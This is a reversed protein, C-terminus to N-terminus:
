AGSARRAERSAMFEIQLREARERLDYAEGCIVFPTGFPLGNMLRNVLRDYKENIEIYEKIRPDRGIQMRVNGVRRETFNRHFDPAFLIRKEGDPKMAVDLLQGDPKRWVAHFVGEAFIGPWEWLMWGHQICGGHSEVQRRVDMFCDDVGSDSRPLVDVFLPVEVGGIKRCLRHMEVTIRQPTAVM